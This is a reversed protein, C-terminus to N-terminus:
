SSRLRLLTCTVPAVPAAGLRTAVGPESGVPSLSISAVNILLWQLRVELGGTSCGARGAAHCIRPTSQNLIGHLKYLGWKAMDCFILDSPTYPKSVASLEPCAAPRGNTALEVIFINTLPKNLKFQSLTLGVTLLDELQDIKKVHFIIVDPLDLLLASITADATAYQITYHVTFRGTSTQLFSFPQTEIYITIFGAHQVVLWGHVEHKRVGHVTVVAEIPVCGFHDGHSVGLLGSFEEFSQVGVCVADVAMDEVSQVGVCVTDVTVDIQIRVVFTQTFPGCDCGLNPHAMPKIRFRQMDVALTAKVGILPVTMACNPDGCVEQKRLWIGWISEDRNLLLTFEQYEQLRDGESSQLLDSDVLLSIRPLPLDSALSQLAVKTVSSLISPTLDFGVSSESWVTNFFAPGYFAAPGVSANKIDPNHIITYESDVRDEM